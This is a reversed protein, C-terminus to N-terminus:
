GGKEEEIQKDLETLIENSYDRSGLRIAKADKQSFLIEYVFQRKLLIMDKLM